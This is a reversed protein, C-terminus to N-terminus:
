KEEERGAGTTKPARGRGAIGGKEGQWGRQAFLDIM